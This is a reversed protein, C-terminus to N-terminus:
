FENRDKQEIIDSKQKEKNKDNASNISVLAISMIGVIAGIVAGIGFGIWFM